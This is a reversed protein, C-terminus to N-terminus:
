LRPLAVWNDRRAGRGKVIPRSPRPDASVASIRTRGAFVALGRGPRGSGSMQWLFVSVCFVKHPFESALFCPSASFTMPFNAQNRRASGGHQLEPDIRGAFRHPASVVANASSPRTRTSRCGQDRRDRAIGGSSRPSLCLRATKGQVHAACCGPTIGVTAAATVGPRSMGRLDIRASGPGDGPAGRNSRWHDQRHARPLPRRRVSFGNRVHGGTAASQSM